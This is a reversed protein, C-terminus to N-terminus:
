EAIGEWMAKLKEWRPKLYERVAPEYEETIRISVSRHLAKRQGVIYLYLVEPGQEGEDETDWDWRYVLNLDLDSKAEEEMFETWSDYSAHCKLGGYWNGECSHYPHNTDRLKM